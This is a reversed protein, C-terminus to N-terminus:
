SPSTHNSSSSTPSALREDKTGITRLKNIIQKPLHWNQAM